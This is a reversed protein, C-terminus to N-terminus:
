RPPTLAWCTDPDLRALLDDVQRAGARPDRLDGLREAHALRRDVVPQLLIPNVATLLRAHAGPPLHLEQVAFSPLSAELKGGGDVVADLDPVVGSSAVAGQVHECGVFVLVLVVVLSRRRIGFGRSWAVRTLDFDGDFGPHNM